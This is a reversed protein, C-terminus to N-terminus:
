ASQREEIVPINQHSYTYNGVHGVQRSLGHDIYIDHGAKQVKECFSWDEGVFQQEKENFRVEFWPKPIAAMIALDILMIGSGVRWVKELGMKNGESTIPVGFSGAGRARATPFSPITKLAINAAVVPKKWGILRHATDAPFSQDSDLFLAHTFSGNLADELCEQRSRPLLSTRKDFIQIERPQGDEFLVSQMYCCMQLISMGFDAKWEGMSPVCLALRIGAKEM